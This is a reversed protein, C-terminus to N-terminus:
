SRGLDPTCTLDLGIPPFRMDSAEIRSVKRIEENEKREFLMVSKSIAFCSVTVPQLPSVHSVQSHRVRCQHLM